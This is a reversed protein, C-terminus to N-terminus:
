AQMQCTGYLTTQQLLLMGSLLLVSLTMLFDLETRPQERSETRSTLSEPGKQGYTPCYTWGRYSVILEPAAETVSQDVRLTQLVPKVPRKKRSSESKVVIDRGPRM